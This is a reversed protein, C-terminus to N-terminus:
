PAAIEPRQEALLTRRFIWLVLGVAAVFILETVEEWWLYWVRDQDYAGGLVMRLLGFGLAGVGAAFTIKATAIARDRKGLLIGLSVAFMLCAAAACYWNEFLQHIRLHGYNYVQGFVLTNYSSDQWDATPLMLSVVFLAPILVYFVRKLGCPVDAYKVCSGCLALAACRRQPDSLLLVRRDIGEIAAYAVFAFCVLMGYCHLYEWLYSAERFAFYNVACAAEGLFFGIMGWRVATLDPGVSHWLVGAIVLSLVMYIPKIFFYAVVAAAQEAISSRRFPWEVAECTATSWRDFAGGKPAPAQELWERIRGDAPPRRMPEANAASRIWEQIGGRVNIGSLCGIRTLHWAARRSAWGMDCVLLLAKGRLPPPLEDVSGVDVIQELPWNVASAIHGASFADSSRVDVLATAADDDQLRRKADDPTVSRIPLSVVAYVMLPVIGGVLALSGTLWRPSRQEDRQCLSPTM